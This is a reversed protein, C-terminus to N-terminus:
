NNIVRAVIRIKDNKGLRINGCTTKGEPKAISNLIFFSLQM